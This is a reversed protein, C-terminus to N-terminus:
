HDLIRMNGSVIKNDLIAGAPIDIRDGHNAIIIVTGRLSVGRGFTVDGSVTLHDLEIIDPINAFRNLFEKVKSFHNEGLKVLPTTPFMRQPSMVLSGHKLSYLNSMVLLLDSTKKVPLFRSRPVNVGVSGDFCKMAAGVATELQIVRLGNELSKNNVIIEMKLTRERLVRDIAKLSAWINNTNFFKFTKVSKFDDVHEKPVQAIELLRLKNEYQILTGGKVDARTKNTVEMVFEMPKQPTDENLLKSLINLDVTAGLNDINSLFCYERGEKIFKSLLGSNQFSEYFDGHGPPYWAEMDNEITFDKAVPLFSERSIRPFCSQNFTYIQVRFGQYKRVIKETDQDTNFSNMLVLPVNADYKKNLHEIQQVTLDLFTLDSRVPIVSKPGHCGMSTGLGGNLKIVILKNLMEKIQEDKPASLGSYEMVADGPLKQIENWDISPGDEQLFRGFLDAFRNMENQLYQKREPETTTLLLNDLESELLRLADRKTVEHFEKSDSPARQHGRVVLFSKLGNM